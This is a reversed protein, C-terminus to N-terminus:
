EAIKPVANTQVLFLGEPRKLKRWKKELRSIRKDLQPHSNFAQPLQMGAKEAAELEKFKRFMEAMGRPDINAAVLYKWGVEDAETEFEKSFGQFVMLGSGGMLINMLGDNSHLFFGFILLPGSAAVIKRLMHKETVHALEHALVGQIEEPRDALELLGSNVVVFGGPLAFANPEPDDVIFFSIEARPEPLVRLLPDALRTLQAVENSHQNLAVEARLAEITGEGIAQEWEMPVKAVISRVMFGTAWSIGWAILGCILFFYLTLRMRRSFERRGKSAEIEAKLEQLVPVIPGELISLDTFITLEPDESDRFCVRDGEADWEAELRDTPIDRVVSHSVFRFLARDPFIRGEVIENGLNPHFLSARTGQSTTSVEPRITAGSKLYAVRFIIRRSARARTCCIGQQWPGRFTSKCVGGPGSPLLPLRSSM